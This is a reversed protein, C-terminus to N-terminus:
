LWKLVEGQFFIKEKKNKIWRDNNLKWYENVKLYYKSLKKFEFFYYVNSSGFRNGEVLIHYKKPYYFIIAERRRGPLAVKCVSGEKYLKNLKRRLIIQYTGKDNDRLITKYTQPILKIEDVLIDINWLKEELKNM